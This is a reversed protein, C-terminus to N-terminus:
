LDGGLVVVAMTYVILAIVVTGVSLLAWGVADVIFTKRAETRAERKDLLIKAKNMKTEGIM